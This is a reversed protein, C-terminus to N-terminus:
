APNLFELLRVTPNDSLQCNNSFYFVIRNKWRVIASCNNAFHFYFILMKKLKKIIKYKAHNKWFIIKKETRAGATRSFKICRFITASVDCAFYNTWPSEWLTRPKTSYNRVTLPVAALILGMDLWKWSTLIPSMIRKLARPNSILTNYNLNAGNTTCQLMLFHLIMFFQLACFICKKYM